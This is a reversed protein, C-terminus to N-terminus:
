SCIWWLRETEANTLPVMKMKRNYVWWSSDTLTLASSRGEFGQEVVLTKLRKCAVSRWIHYIAMTNRKNSQWDYNTEEESTEVKWKTKIKSKIQNSKSQKTEKMLVVATLDMDRAGSM